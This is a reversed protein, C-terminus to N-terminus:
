KAVIEFDFTPSWRMERGKWLSDCQKFIFPKSHTASKAGGGPGDGDLLSLRLDGFVAIIIGGIMAGFAPGLPSDMDKSPGCLLSSLLLGM